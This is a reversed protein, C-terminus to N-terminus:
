FLTKYTQQLNRFAELNTDRRLVRIRGEVLSRADSRTLPAFQLNAGDNTVIFFLRQAYLTAFLTQGNELKCISFLMGFNPHTLYNEINMSEFGFRYPCLAASLIANRQQM